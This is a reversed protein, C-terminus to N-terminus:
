LVELPWAIEVKAGESDFIRCTLTEGDLEEDWPVDVISMWTPRRPPDSEEDGPDTIQPQGFLPENGANWNFSLPESSDPDQASVFATTDSDVVFVEDKERPYSILVPPENDEEALPMEWTVFCAMQSFVLCAGHWIVIAYALPRHHRHPRREGKAFRSVPTM